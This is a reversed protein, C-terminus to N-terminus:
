HGVDSYAIYFRVEQDRNRQVFSYWWEGNEYMYKDWDINAQPQVYAVGSSKDPSAYVPTDKLLELTGSTVIAYGGGPVESESTATSDQTANANQSPQTPTQAPATTTASSTSSAGSSAAETSSDAQSASSSSSSKKSSSKSKKTSSTSTKSTQSAKTYFGSKDVKNNGCGKLLVFALLLVLLAILLGTVIKLTKKM